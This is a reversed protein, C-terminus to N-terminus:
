EAAATQAPKLKTTVQHLIWPLHLICTYHDGSVWIHHSEELKAAAALARANAAPVVQDSLASILWTTEPVLRHALYTLELRKCLERLKADDVGAQEMRERIWRSERQGNTFMDYLNGGALLIFTKDFVADVAATSAAIFGGLSTGQLSIHEADIRPLAAIADRARRADAVAQGCLEFFLEGDLRSRDIRRAGFSPLHMIFAHIGAKAYTRAMGREVTMTGDLMHLILVAPANLAAAGGVGGGSADADLPAEAHYWELVVRNVQQGPETGRPRPSDFTVVADADTTAPTGVATVGRRVSVTFEAPTWALTELLQKAQPSSEDGINLTDRAQYRTVEAAAAEPPLTATLACLILIGFTSLRRTMM